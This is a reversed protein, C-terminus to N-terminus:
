SAKPNESSVCFLNGEPDAMTVWGYHGVDHRDVIVGGDSEIETAASERDECFFDLHLKNKGPTPDSVAIFCMGWGSGDTARIVCHAPEEVRYAEQWDLRERWWTALAFPDACDVSVQAPNIKM